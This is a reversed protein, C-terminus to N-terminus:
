QEKVTLNVRSGFLFHLEIVRFFCAEMTCSKKRLKEPYSHWIKM